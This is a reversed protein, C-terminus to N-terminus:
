HGSSKYNKLGMRWIFMAIIFMIITIALSVYLHEYEGKLIVLVPYYAIISFPILYNLVFELAKHNIVSPYKVFNSINDVAIAIPFSTLTWFAVTMKMLRISFILAM